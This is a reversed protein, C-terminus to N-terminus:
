FGPRLRYIQIGLFLLIRLDSRHYWICHSLLNFDLVAKTPHVPHNLWQLVTMGKYCRLSIGRPVATYVRLDDIRCSLVHCCLGHADNTGAMYFGDEM